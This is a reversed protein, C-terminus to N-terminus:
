KRKRKGGAGATEAQAFAEDVDAVPDGPLKTEAAPEAAPEESTTHDEHFEPETPAVPQLRKRIRDVYTAGNIVRGLGIKKSGVFSPVSEKQINFHDLAAIFDRSDKFMLVIYDYHEYPMLAMAPPGENGDGLKSSGQEDIEKRALDVDVDLKNLLALELEDFVDPVRQELDDLAERLLTGEWDGQIDPHNLVLNLAKEDEDSLDVVSVEIETAGQAKLIKLRQHGGVLNGTRENWVLPEVLGFRKLSRQIRGYRPDDPQLDIRPNYVAPNVQGIPVVRVPM